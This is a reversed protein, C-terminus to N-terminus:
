KNKWQRMTWRMRSTIRYYIFDTIRSILTDQKLLAFWQKINM